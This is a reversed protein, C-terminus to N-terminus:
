IVGVEEILYEIFDSAVERKGWSLMWFIKNASVDRMASDWRIWSFLLIKDIYRSKTNSRRFSKASPNPFFQAKKM